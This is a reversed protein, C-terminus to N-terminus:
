KIELKTNAKKLATIVAKNATFGRKNKGKKGQKKQYAMGLARNCGWCAVTKNDDGDSGGESRPIVHDM